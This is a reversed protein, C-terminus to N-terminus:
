HEGKGWKNNIVKEMNEFIRSVEDIRMKKGSLINDNLAEMYGIVHFVVSRQDKEDLAAFRDDVTRLRRRKRGTREQERSRFDRIDAIEASEVSYMTAEKGYM